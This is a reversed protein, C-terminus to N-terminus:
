ARRRRRLGAIGALAPAMLFAAAPLPVAQAKFSTLESAKVAFVYFNSPGASAPVFDNDNARWLTHFLEGSDIIDAGWAMAEMKAPVQASTIGKANLALKVDLFLTKTVAQASLDGSLNTVDTAGNLDIKFLQKVVASSGDGLGKGDREDLLFEHDNIALIESIGTGTTFRYAFEQTTGTAIDVTVIRVNKNSDQLLPARLVGILKSGDPTIALGEMGKNAVRGSTNTPSGESATTPGPKAVALNGPLTFVRTRAGTANDFEYLYAGYEDSVYVKSGDNSMRIGEPDFRGNNPSVSNQAPDYGDSRGTFYFQGPANESPTGSVTGTAVSGYSLATPSYLKTTSQLTPVLTYAFSGSATASLNMSITHFRSIYSTTDELAPNWATANPGRDPIALFVNNGAYALGSGVGGLVSKALGNELNGNLGSLDNTGSLSGVAMLELNSLAAAGQAWGTACIAASLLFNLNM